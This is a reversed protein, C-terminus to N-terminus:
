RRTSRGATRCTRTTSRSSSAPTSSRRTSRTCRTPSPSSSTKRPAQLARQAALARDDGARHEDARRGGVDKGAMAAKLNAIDQQVSEQGIYKAPGTLFSQSRTYTPTGRLKQFFGPFDVHDRGSTNRPAADPSVTVTREEHGSLRTRIYYSFGSKSQEGDNVVDIGTRIQQDVLSNVASKIGANLDNANYDKGEEKAVVMDRLAQERPLTGQHMVLIRDTSRKM